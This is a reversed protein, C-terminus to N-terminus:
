HRFSDFAAVVGFFSIFAIWAWLVLLSGSIIALASVSFSGAGFLTSIRAYAKRPHRTRTILLLLKTMLKEGKRGYSLQSLVKKGDETLFYRPESGIEKRFLNAGPADIFLDMYSEARDISLGFVDAIERLSLGNDGAAGLAVLADYTYYFLPLLEVVGSLGGILSPSREPRFLEILEEMYRIGAPTITYGLEGSKNVTSVLDKSKLKWLADTISKRRRGTIISLEGATKPDKAEKLISLIQIQLTGKTTDVVRNLEKLKEILISLSM